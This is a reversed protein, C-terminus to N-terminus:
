ISKNNWAINLKQTIDVTQKNEYLAQIFSDVTEIDLNSYLVERTDKNLIETYYYEDENMVQFVNQYDLEIGLFSGKFDLNWIDYGQNEAIIAIVSLTNMARGQYFM